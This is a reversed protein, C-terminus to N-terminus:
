DAPAEPRALRHLAALIEVMAGTDRGCYARLHAMVSDKDGPTVGPGYVARLWERGATQGDAISLGEYGRGTLAPLVAKLSYSGRQDAHYVGFTRFPDALDCLRERLDDTLSQHDPFADGLAELVQSEFSANFALVTGRSGIARLAELLAPRPDVRETSLFEIHRAEAGPADQVHLSFQFPIQQYPRTGEFLPVAPNVSEFDLHWLPYELKQLLRQIARPEIHLGNTAVASKQLHQVATLEQDPVDTVLTWGEELWIFAKRGARALTTVHHRPLGGWCVDLMACTFPDHCQSGIPTDPRDGGIIAAYRAFMAPVQEMLNRAHETIDSLRFLQQPDVAGQRVYTTDVHMLFMRDLKIGSSELTGAQYAVDWVNVEKVKTSSKVEILDWAGGRAPALIDARVYRRGAPEDAVFSAEFIPRRRALLEKTAAVTSELDPRDAGGSPVEVGDPHLQKALDGITHGMDFIFQTGPPPPPIVDKDNYQTWLLLPCQMGSLFKSKSITPGQRMFMSLNDRTKQAHPATMQM